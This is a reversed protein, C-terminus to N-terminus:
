KVQGGASASLCDVEGDSNLTQTQTDGALYVYLDGAMFDQQCQLIGFGSDQGHVAYRGVLM